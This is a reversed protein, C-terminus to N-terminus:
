AVALATRRKKRWHAALGLGGVGLLMMAWTSPEPVPSFSSPGTNQFIVEGVQSPISPGSDLPIFQIDFDVPLGEMGSPLDAGLNASTPTPGTVGLDLTGYAGKPTVSTSDFKLNGTWQPASVDTPDFVPSGNALVVALDYHFGGLNVANVSILNLMLIQIATEEVQGAATLTVNDLRQVVTDFNPTTNVVPAIVQGVKHESTPGVANGHADVWQINYTVLGLSPALANLRMADAPSLPYFPDVGPSFEAGELPVVGIGALTIKAEGPLTQFADANAAITAAMAAPSVFLAAAASASLLSLAKTIKMNDEMAM